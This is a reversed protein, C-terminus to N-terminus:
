QVGKEEYKIERVFESDLIDKIQESTQRYEDKIEELRERLERRDEGKEEVRDSLRDIEKELRKEKELIERNELEENKGQIEKELQQLNETYATFRELEDLAELLKKRQSEDLLGAPLKKRAEEVAAETEAPKERLSDLEGDRVRKLLDLHELEIEGNEAQYVLKKMGRESRSLERRMEKKVSRKESKLEQLEERTKEYDQWASSEHLEELEEKKEELEQGTNSEEIKELREKVHEREDELRELEEVADELESRHELVTYENGLFDELSETEKRVKELKQPIDSPVNEMVAAEKQTMTQFDELFEELQEHLKEPSAQLDIGSIMKERDKAINEAVDEVIARDKEDSHEKLTELEHDLEELAEEIDERHEGAKEEAKELEDKKKEAFFEDAEEVQVQFPERFRAIFERFM